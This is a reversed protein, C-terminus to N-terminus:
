PGGGEGSSGAAESDGGEGKLQGLFAVLDAKKQEPLDAYSPM